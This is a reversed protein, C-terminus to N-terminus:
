WGQRRMAVVQAVLGQFGKKFARRWRSSKLRKRKLGPREHFRQANFDQKVKNKACQMELMRFARGVDLGRDADVKIMRGLSPGLKDKLTTIMPPGIKETTTNEPDLMDRYNLGSRGLASDSNGPARSARNRGMGFSIENFMKNFSDDLNDDTNRSPPPRAAVNSPSAPANSGPPQLNRNEQQASASKFSSTRQSSSTPVGKTRDPASNLLDGFPDRPESQTTSGDRDDASRTRTTWFLRKRSTNSIRSLVTPRAATSRTFAPALFPLVSPQSRLLM